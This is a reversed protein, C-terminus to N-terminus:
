TAASPDDITCPFPCAARHTDWPRELREYFAHAADDEDAKAEFADMQESTLADFSALYKEYAIDEQRGEEETPERISGDDNFYDTCFLGIREALRRGRSTKDQM